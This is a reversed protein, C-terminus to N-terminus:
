SDAFYEYMYMCVNRWANNGLKRSIHHLIDDKKTRFL